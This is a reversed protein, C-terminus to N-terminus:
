KLIQIKGILPLEKARGNVANVIGIIALILFVLSLLAFISLIFYLRWSIGLIIFSLINYVIGYALAAILLILGQNSHFRAFKSEKAALLPVLVLIGLYALVAMVKNQEIDAADFDNTTDATDNLARLKEAYDATAENQEIGQAIPAGCSTCFKVNDEIQTGCAGCFVM